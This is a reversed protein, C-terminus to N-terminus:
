GAALGHGQRREERERNLRDDEYVSICALAAACAVPHSNYTLGSAFVREKFM